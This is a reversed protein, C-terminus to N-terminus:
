HHHDDTDTKYVEGKHDTKPKPLPKLVSSPDKFVIGLDRLTDRSDHCITSIGTEMNNFTVFLNKLNPHREALENIWLRAMSQDPQGTIATGHVYGEEFDDPHFEIEDTRPKVEHGM